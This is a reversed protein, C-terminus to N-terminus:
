AAAEVIRYRRVGEIKDSEITHGTKKIGTLAARVTHAQWDTAAIMEALSAGAERKLLVILQARKTGITEVRKPAETKKTM